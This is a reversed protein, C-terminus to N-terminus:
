VGLATLAPSFPQAMGSQADAQRFWSAKESLHAATPGAFGNNTLSAHRHGPEM